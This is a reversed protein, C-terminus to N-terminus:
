DWWSQGHEKITDWIAEWEEQEFKNKDLLYDRYDREKEENLKEYTEKSVVTLRCCGNETPTSVVDTEFPLAGKIRDYAEDAELYNNIHDLTQNIQKCVACREEDIIIKNNDICDRTRQLKHKLLILIFEYDWDEDKWLIPLYKCIKVIKNIFKKIKFM